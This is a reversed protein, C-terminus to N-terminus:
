GESGGTTLLLRGDPSFLAFTTFQTAEGANELVFETRRDALTL